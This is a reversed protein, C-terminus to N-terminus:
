GYGGQEEPYGQTAKTSCGQLFRAHVKDTEKSNGERACVRRHTCTLFSMRARIKGNFRTTKEHLISNGRTRVRVWAYMVVEAM